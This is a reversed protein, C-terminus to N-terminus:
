EESRCAAICVNRNCRDNAGWITSIQLVTPKKLYLVITRYQLIIIFAKQILYRPPHRTTAQRMGTETLCQFLLLVPRWPWSGFRDAPSSPTRSARAPITKGRVPPNRASLALISSASRVRDVHGDERNDKGNKGDALGIPGPATVPEGGPQNSVPSATEQHADHRRGNVCGCEPPIIREKPSAWARNRECQLICQHRRREEPPQGTRQNCEQHHPQEGDRLADNARRAPHRGPPPARM